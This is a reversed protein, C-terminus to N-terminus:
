IQWAGGQLVAVEDGDRTIGTVDVDDGGIMFDVHVGSQSVRQRDEEDDVAFGFGGGLAIHSAANEDLLTDHFVTDLAGIRGERDVLAVEGLQTGGPDQEVRARLNAAGEDADIEVARGGEFRVRLGKVASGDAFVLPKTATVHGEARRPDPSTFVEESPLNPKHELGDVTTFTAAAWRSSPFLGLTLETGPGDFRLADLRLETLRAAAATMDRFRADWAAVPDPGDLRLVHALEDTLRQLAEDPPLDPHVRGAWGDSPYPVITWNTTRDNVVKSTEKVRPLMDRGARAPDLDALLGPESAGTVWVRACRQEGLALMRDGYWSPVFDLTDEQAHAIRARKVHPDFYFADVFRAGRRYAEAALARVLPAHDPEAHVFVIQGPQVNAGFAIALEALRRTLEDSTM